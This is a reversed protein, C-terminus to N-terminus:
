DKLNEIECVEEKLQELDVDLEHHIVFGMAIRLVIIAAVIYLESTERVFVTKLIEAALYFELALAITRAMKIRLLTSSEDYKLKIFHWFIMVAGYILTIGGMLELIAMLFHSINITLEEVLHLM